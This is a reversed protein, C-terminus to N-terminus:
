TNREKLKAEIAEAFGRRDFWPENCGEDYMVFEYALDAVEFGELGVWERKKDKGVGQLEQWAKDVPHNSVYTEVPKYGAARLFNRFENIAGDWTVNDGLTMKLELVDPLDGFPCPQATYELKIM